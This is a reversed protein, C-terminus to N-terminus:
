TADVMDALELIAGRGYGVGDVVYCRSHALDLIRLM